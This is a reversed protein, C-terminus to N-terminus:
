KLSIVPIRHMTSNNHDKNNNHYNQEIQILITTNKRLIYDYLHIIFLYFLFPLFSISICSFSFFGFLLFYKWINRDKYHLTIIYRVVSNTWLQIQINIKENYQYYHSVFSFTFIDLYPFYKNLQRHNRYLNFWIHDFSYYLLYQSRIYTYRISELIFGHILQKQITKEHRYITLYFLKVWCILSELKLASFLHTGRTRFEVIGIQVKFYKM